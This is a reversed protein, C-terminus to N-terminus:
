EDPRRKRFILAGATGAAAAALLLIWIGATNRDGTGPSGPPTQRRVTQAKDMLDRHSGVEFEEGSESRIEYLTEFAVYEGDRLQSSDFSFLVVVTGDPEEASFEAEGTIEKGDAAAPKGTSKDMLIGTVRYKAGVSLNEYQVSDAIEVTGKHDIRHDSDKKDTATTRIRPFHVTQNEDEINEHVVVDTGTQLQPNIFQLTEFVVASRGSLDDSNIIFFIDEFGDESDPTFQWEKVENGSKDVMVSPIEGAGKGGDPVAMVKGRIVYEKGPLLNEYHFRDRITVDGGAEMTRGESQPNVAETYGYPHHVTQAEDDINEHVIVEAGNHYVREFVVADEGALESADYVFTIELAGDRSGPTFTVTNNEVSITGSPQEESVEEESSKFSADVMTSPIEEGSSKKMVRGAATYEKGPILNRYVLTDMIRVEEDPYAIRDETELDKVTTAGDPIYVTQSGDLVEHVIVPEGDLTVKEYVTVDRNALASADIAFYLDLTGDKSSPVFEVCGKEQPVGNEDTMASPIEELIAEGNENCGTAAMVKGTFRYTEGPLLNEYRFEDKFVRNGAALSNKIGTELDAANTEGRPIHDTQKEDNIDRHVAIDIGKYRVTEGIVLDEGALESADAEFSVLIEGSVEDGEKGAPTFTVKEADFSIDGEGEAGIIKSPVTQAQDFDPGESKIKVEGSIEYTKGAILGKYTIRDVIVRDRDALTNKKGTDRDCADTSVEPVYVTQQPDSVDKHSAILSEGLYVEEFVVIGSEHLQQTNVAFTLETEGDAERPTFKKEATVEKGDLTLATGDSKKMLVGRLIYEEGPILNKYTVKDTIRANETRGLQHDGTEPNVAETAIGPFHITQSKDAPDAHEAIVKGDRELTEFAVASRGEMSIGADFTFVMKVAGDDSDAKFKQQSTVERGDADLITKGTEKDVLRGKLLYEKGAFLNRYSVTDEITVREGACAIRTGSAANVASTGIVPELPTDAVEFTNSTSRKGQIDVLEAKYETTRRIQGIYLDYNGFKGDNKYGKAPKTERITVTGLPLTILGGVKYFNDGSVFHKEDLSARYLGNETKKTEIVWSRSAQRPLSSANYYGNYFSVTFQAGELSRIDANDAEKCTKNIVIGTPDNAPMDSVAIEVTKNDEVTFPYVKDSLLYGKAPRTEILYYKGPSVSKTRSEGNADFAFLLGEVIGATGRAKAAAESTYVQYLTQDFAYCSNGSSISTDASTKRIKMQGPHEILSYSGFGFDQKPDGDDTLGNDTTVYAYYNDPVPLDEIAKVFRYVHDKLKNSADRFGEGIGSHRALGLRAYLESAAVHTVIRLASTDDSGVANEIVSRGPGDAGYYLAKVMMPANIEYVEGASVGEMDWGSHLPDLCVGTGAKRGSLYLDYSITLWDNGAGDYGKDSYKYVRQNRHVLSIKDSINRRSGKGGKTWDPESAAALLVYPSFSNNKIEVKDGDVRCPISKMGSVSGKEAHFVSMQSDEEVAHEFVVDVMGAPQIEKGSRDTFRIDIVAATLGSDAMEEAKEKYPQAAPGSLEKVEAKTGEPFVGDGASIKVVYKGIKEEATFSPMTDFSINVTKQGKGILIEQEFGAQPREPDYITEEKGEGDGTVTFSKVRCGKDASARVTVTKGTEEDASFDYRGDSSIVTRGEEDVVLVTLDRAKKMTYVKEGDYITVTGGCSGINVAIRGTETKNGGEDRTEPVEPEQVQASETNTAASGSGEAATEPSQQDGQITESPQPAEQATESLQSGEPVTESLQSGEPVTESPQPDEQAIESSQVDEKAPLEAETEEERSAADSTSGDSGPDVGEKEDQLSEEERVTEEASLGEATTEQAPPDQNVSEAANAAGTFASSFVTVAALAAAALRCKLSM